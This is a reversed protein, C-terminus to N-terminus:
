SMDKFYATKKRIAERIFVTTTNSIRICSFLYISFISSSYTLFYPARINDSTFYDFSEKIVWFMEMIVEDEQRTHVIKEELVVNLLIKLIFDRHKLFIQRISISITLIQTRVLPPKLLRALSLLLLAQLYIM